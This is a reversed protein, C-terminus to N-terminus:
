HNKRTRSALRGIVERTQYQGRYDISVDGIRTCLGRQGTQLSQSKITAQTVDRFLCQCHGDMSQIRCAVETTLIHSYPLCSAQPM